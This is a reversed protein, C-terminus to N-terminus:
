IGKGRIVNITCNLSHIGVCSIMGSVIAPLYLEVILFLIALYIFWISICICFVLVYWIFINLLITRLM